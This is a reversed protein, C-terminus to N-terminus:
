ARFRRSFRGIGLRYSILAGVFFLIWRINQTMGLKSKGEQRDTFTIPVEVIRLGHKMAILTCEPQFEFDRRRGETVVVRAIRENFIRFNTTSEHPAGLLWRYLLNAVYSQLRRRWGWNSIRGGKTYRSGQVLDANGTEAAALLRPVDEPSHSLDADMTLIHSCNEALAARMGDRIASGLGLKGARTIVSMDGYRSALQQAVVSTGDPSNDDVVFIHHEVGLGLGCLSEILRPLNGAENYTALVMGLKTVKQM